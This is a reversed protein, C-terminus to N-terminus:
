FTPVQRNRLLRGIEDPEISGTSGCSCFWHILGTSTLRQGSIPVVVHDPDTVDIRHGVHEPHLVKVADSILMGM